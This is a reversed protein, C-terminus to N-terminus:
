YFTNVNEIFAGGSVSAKILQSELGYSSFIKMAESEIATEDTLDDTIILISPGAGSVSVSVAKNAIAMKKIKPYFPFLSLRSKEVIDDNMGECVLQSDGTMLGVILSSLRRSNEVMEATNISEPVMERAKRTKGELVLTPVALMVGFKEHINIRAIKIPNISKVFVLGGFISASVNDSHPTGSAAMEGQTAYYVMENLTLNLGFLKNSAMVAAASSAGSSGLGLGYPIGKEIKITVADEVGKDEFLKLVSLGATNRAPDLPIKDAIISIKESTDNENIKITVRDYFSTHALAIVDFGPGLNASSSYAVSTVERM